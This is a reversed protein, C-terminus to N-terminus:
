CSIGWIAALIMGLFILVIVSCGAMTLGFGLKLLRM